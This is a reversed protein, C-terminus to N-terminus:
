VRAAHALQDPRRARSDNGQYEREHIGTDRLSVSGGVAVKSEDNIHDLIRTPIYFDYQQLADLTKKNIIGHDYLRERYENVFKQTDDM